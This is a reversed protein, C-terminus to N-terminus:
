EGYDGSSEARSRVNDSLYVYEGNELNKTAEARMQELLKDVYNRQRSEMM